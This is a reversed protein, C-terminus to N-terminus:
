RRSRAAERADRAARWRVAWRLLNKLWVPLSADEIEKRIADLEIPKAESMRRDLKEDSWHTSDVPRSQLIWRAFSEGGPLRRAFDVSQADCIAEIRARAPEVYPINHRFLRAHTAEHVITAAIMWTATDAATVYERDLVCVRLDQIWYGAAYATRQVWIWRIDRAIRSMRRPDHQAILDLASEVVAIARTGIAENLVPGLRISVGHVTRGRATALSVWCRFHWLALRIRWWCFRLFRM